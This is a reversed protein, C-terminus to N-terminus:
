EKDWYEPDKPRNKAKYYISDEDDGDTNVGKANRFGVALKYFNKNDRDYRYLFRCDPNLKRPPKKMSFFVSRSWGILDHFLQTKPRYPDAMSDEMVKPLTVFIFENIEEHTMNEAMEALDVPVFDRHVYVEAIPHNHKNKM